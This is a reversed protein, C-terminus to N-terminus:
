EIVQILGEEALQTLFALLQDECIGRDVEYEQALADVIRHIPSPEKLLDWVVGGISGLNYYKGNTVSLMVKEEGMDSAIQNGARAVIHDPQLAQMASRIM